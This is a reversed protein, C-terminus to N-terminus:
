GKEKRLQDILKTMSGFGDQGNWQLEGVWGGRIKGQKDIVFVTPWCNVKYRNWNEGAGDIVVPYDIKLNKVAERVNEPKKEVELEPTHVGIVQVDKADYKAAWQAYYPLNHRCNICAFTWFHLVTVHGKLPPAEANIWQKGTLAPAAEYVALQPKALHAVVLTTCALALGFLAIKM